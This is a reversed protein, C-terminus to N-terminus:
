VAVEKDINEILYDCYKKTLVDLETKDVKLNTRGYYLYDLTVIILHNLFEENDKPTKYKDYNEIFYDENYGIYDLKNKLYELQSNIYDKNNAVVLLFHINDIRFVFEILLQALDIEKFMCYRMLSFLISVNSNDKPLSNCKAYIMESASLVNNTFGFYFEIDEKINHKIENAQQNKTDLMFVNYFDKMNLVNYTVQYLPRHGPTKYLTCRLDIYGISNPVLQIIFEFGKEKHSFVPMNDYGTTLYNSINGFLDKTLHFEKRIFIKKAM